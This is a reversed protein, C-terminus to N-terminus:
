HEILDNLSDNLKSALIKINPEYFMNEHNGPVLYREIPQSSYNDWWNLPADYNFLETLVEAKFLILTSEIRPLKYHMLMKERHWQLELLFDSDRINNEIHKELIRSNQEQMMDKFYAENSQLAPYEAWGDLSIIARIEEGKKRLQKAMEIAVTSGFSAVGLLYPGHPQVTQIVEIYSRAM